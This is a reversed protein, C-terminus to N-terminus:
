RRIFHGATPIKDARYYERDDPSLDFKDAELLRMETLASKKSKLLTFVTLGGSSKSANLPILSSHLVM